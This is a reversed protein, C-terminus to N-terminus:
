FTLTKVHRWAAPPSTADPDLSETAAFFQLQDRVPVPRRGQGV